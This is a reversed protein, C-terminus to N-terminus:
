HMKSQGLSIATNKEHNNATKEPFRGGKQPIATIAPATLFSLKKVAGAFHVSRTGHM